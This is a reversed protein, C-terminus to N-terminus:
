AAAEREGFYADDLLQQVSYNLAEPLSAAEEERLGGEALTRGLDWAEDAVEGIRARLSPNKRLRKRLSARQAKVSLRWGRRPGVDRSHDLKLLHEIIRSLHSGVAHEQEGGLSEIEEIINPVDLLDFRGERLLRGQELCWAALDHGYAASSAEPTRVKTAM